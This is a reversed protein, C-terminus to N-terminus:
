IVTYIFEGTFTPNVATSGLNPSVDLVGEAVMEMCLKSVQFGQVEVQNNEDKSVTVTVFTTDDIGGAAELQQEATFIM